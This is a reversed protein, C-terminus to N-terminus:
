HAEFGITTLQTKKQIKIERLDSCLNSQTFANFASCIEKENDTVIARRSLYDLPSEYHPLVLEM